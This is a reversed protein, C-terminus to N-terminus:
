EPALAPSNEYIDNWFQWGESTAHWQFASALINAVVRTQAERELFDQGALEAIRKFQKPYAAKLRDGNTM